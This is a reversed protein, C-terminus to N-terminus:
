PGNAQSWARRAARMVLVGVTKKRYVPTLDVNKSPRAAQRAADAATELAEPELKSGVLVQEADPVRLPSTGVAGLAVRARACVGDEARELYVAASALPFDLGRRMRLKEYSAGSRPPPAPVAISTLLEGPELHLPNQGDASYLDEVSLTRSGRVSEVRAGAGLAILVPPLDAQHCAQCKTGGPAVYCRDGGAKFCPPRGRRWFASQNYYVCRTDLCLNGGLTARSQIPPAAVMAAAAALSRLPGPGAWRALDWLTTAAGFEYSKGVFRTGLLPLSGLSVLTAGTHHGLKLAVLLDTGGAMVRAGGIASLADLAQSLAKPRIVEVPPLRLM